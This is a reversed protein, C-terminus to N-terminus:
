TKGQRLRAGLREFPLFLRMQDEASIGAGTDSVIIRVGDGTRAWSVRVKGEKRNYKVANSLLNLVAQYLMDRDALTQYFVPTLKENLSINKQQAQPSIVELAEKLIVRM